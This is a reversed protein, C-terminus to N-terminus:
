KTREPLLNILEIMHEYGTKCLRFQSLLFEKVQKNKSELKQLDDFTANHWRNLVTPILSGDGSIENKNESQEDTGIKYHVYPNRKKRLKEYNTIEYGSDGKPGVFEFFWDFYSNNLYPNLKSEKDINLSQILRIFTLELDKKIPEKTPPLFQFLYVGVREWFKYLSEITLEAYMLYYRDYLTFNDDIKYVKLSDYEKPLSKGHLLYNNAYDSSFLTIALLHKIREYCEVIEQLYFYSTVYEQKKFRESHSNIKNWTETYHGYDYTLSEIGSLKQNAHIQFLNIMKQNHDWIEIDSSDKYKNIDCHPHKFVRVTAKILIDRQELTSESNLKCRLFFDSVFLIMQYGNVDNILEVVPDEEFSINKSEYEFWYDSDPIAKLVQKVLISNKRIFIDLLRGQKLTEEIEPIIKTKDM